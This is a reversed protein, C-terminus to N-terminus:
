RDASPQVSTIEWPELRIDLELIGDEGVTLTRTEPDEGVRRLDAEQERSINIPSGMEIWRRQVDAKGVGVTEVRYTAGPDLGLVRRSVTTATGVEEWRRSEEWTDAAGIARRGMEKPYNFFLASLEGSAKRTIVGEPLSEVVTDGLGSLMRFAHYTPKPIGQENLAGFGGHLPGIGGGGEEFVDSFTWYSLSDTLDTCALYTRTIYTAAFPTDHMFDRSSPSSSWETVHLEAEPYRSGAIISQMVELDDRTADVQRALPVMEGNAGFANDTPYLHTTVFDVPLDRSECFELFERIWVPKWELADPDEAAATAAEVSRDEYEGDYRADPVFVSTSPGGVKLEPDIAKITRVTAEYLDFYESRTGTWFHPVLNPENWVEFLWTRVEDAGYRDEWHRVTQGVLDCWADMDNPPCCNAKWWFLNGKVTALASPMFGLEVFPTIGSDVLYDYVKDVYSFTIVPEPLEADPGFGGGYTTRYVLMDDHFLGHFRIRQFGIDRISRTFQQQWDARLAERARGAGVCASWIHRLQTDKSERGEVTFNGTM